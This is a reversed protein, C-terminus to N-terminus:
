QTKQTLCLAKAASLLIVSTLVLMHIKAEAVYSGLRWRWALLQNTSTCLEPDQSDRDGSVQKEVGFSRGQQPCEATGTRDRESSYAVPRSPNGLIFGQYQATPM